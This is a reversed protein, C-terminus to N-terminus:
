EPSRSPGNSWSHRDRDSAGADALSQWNELPVGQADTEILIEDAHAELNKRHKIHPANYYADWFISLVMDDSEDPDDKLFEKM